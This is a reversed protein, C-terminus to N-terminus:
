TGLFVVPNEVPEKLYSDLEDKTQKVGIVNVLANYRKDISRYGPDEEDGLEIEAKQDQTSKSSQSQSDQVDTAKGYRESYEKFMDVLINYISDYLAKADRTGEGYLDAFCLNAFQMKKRPDFVTVMILMKNINKMDDWYKDFKTYM